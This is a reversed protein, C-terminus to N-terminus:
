TGPPPNGHFSGAGGPPTIAPAVNMEYRTGLYLLSWASWCLGALFNLLAPLHILKGVLAVALFWILGMLALSWFAAFTDGFCRVLSQVAKAFAEGASVGEAVVIYPGYTGLAVFVPGVILLWLVLVLFAARALLLGLAFALLALALVVVLLILEYLFMRGWNRVGARWYDGPWADEDRVARSVVHLMGAKTVPGVVLLIALGVLLLGAPQISVPPRTMPVGSLNWRGLLMAGASVWSLGVAWAGLTQILAGFLAALLLAAWHAKFQRWTESM